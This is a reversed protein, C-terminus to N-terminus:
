STHKFLQFVEALHVLFRVVLHVDVFLQAVDVFLLGFIFFCQLAEFFNKVDGPEHVILLIFEAGVFTNSQVIEVQAIRM